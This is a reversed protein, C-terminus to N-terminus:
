DRVGKLKNMPGSVKLGVLGVLGLELKISFLRLVLKIPKNFEVLKSVILKSFEVLKSVVLKMSVLKIIQGRIHERLWCSNDGILIYKMGMMGKMGKNEVKFRFLYHQNLYRNLQCSTIKM